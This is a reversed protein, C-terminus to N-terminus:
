PNAEGRLFRARGQSSRAGREIVRNRTIPNTHSQMGSQCFFVYILFRPQCGVVVYFPRDIVAWQLKSMETVNPQLSIM